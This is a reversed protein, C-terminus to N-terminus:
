LRSVIVESIRSISNLTLWYLCEFYLCHAILFGYVMGRRTVYWGTYPQLNSGASLMVTCIIVPFIEFIHKRQVQLHTMAFHTCFKDYFNWTQSPNFRWFNCVQSIVFIWIISFFYSDTKGNSNRKQCLFVITLIAM